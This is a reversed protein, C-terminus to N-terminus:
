RGTYYLTTLTILTFAIIATFVDINKVYAGTKRPSFITGKEKANM